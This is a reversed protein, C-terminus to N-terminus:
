EALCHWARVSIGHRFIRLPIAFDVSVGLRAVAEALICCVTSLSPRLNSALSISQSLDTAKRRNPDQQAGVPFSFYGRPVGRLLPRGFM